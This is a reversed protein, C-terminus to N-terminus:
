LLYICARTPKTKSAPAELGPFYDSSKEEDYDVKLDNM